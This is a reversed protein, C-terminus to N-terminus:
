IFQVSTWLANYELCMSLHHLHIIDDKKLLVMKSFHMRKPIASQMYPMLQWSDPIADRTLRTVSALRSLGNGANPLREQRFMCFNCRDRSRKEHQTPILAHRLLRLRENGNSECTENGRIEECSKFMAGLCCAVRPYTLGDCVVMPHASGVLRIRENGQEKWHREHCQSLENWCIRRCELRYCVQGGATSATM